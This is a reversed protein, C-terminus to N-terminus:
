AARRVAASRLSPALRNMTSVATVWSSSERHVPCRCTARAVATERGCRASRAPSPAKQTSVRTRRAWVSSAGGSM